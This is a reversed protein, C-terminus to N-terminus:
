TYYKPLHSFNERALEGSAKCVEIYHETFFEDYM